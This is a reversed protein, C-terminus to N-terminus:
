AAEKRYRAMAIEDPVQHHEQRFDKGRAYDPRPVHANHVYAYHACRELQEGCEVISWDPEEDDLPYTGAIDLVYWAQPEAVQRSIGGPFEKWHDAYFAQGPRPPTSQSHHYFVTLVRPSFVYVWEHMLPDVNESTIVMPGDAGDYPHDPYSSWGPRHDDIAHRLFAEVNGQHTNQLDKWLKAGLWTPYSDWHHYVGEWSDDRRARAIVGRTSM